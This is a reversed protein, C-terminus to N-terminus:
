FISCIELDQIQSSLIQKIPVFVSPQEFKIVLCFPPRKSTRGKYPSWIRQRLSIQPASEAADQPYFVMILPLYLIKKEM